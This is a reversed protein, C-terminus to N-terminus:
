FREEELDEATVRIETPEWSRKVGPRTKCKVEVCEWSHIVFLRGKADLWALIAKKVAPWGRYKRVHKMVEDRMCAQIAIVEGGARYALLDMFDFLDERHCGTYRPKGNREDPPAFHIKTRECIDACYGNKRLYMLSRYTTDRTIGSHVRVRYRDNRFLMTQTM